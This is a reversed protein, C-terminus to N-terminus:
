KKGGSNVYLGCWATAGGVVTSVFAAQSASPDPLSMFWIGVEYTLWGYILLLLRPIPRWADFKEPTLM